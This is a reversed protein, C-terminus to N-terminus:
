VTPTAAEFAFLDCVLYRRDGMLFCHRLVSLVTGDHRAEEVRVEGLCMAVSGRKLPANEYWAELAYPAEHQLYRESSYRRDVEMNKRLVWLSGPFFRELNEATPTDAPVYPHPQLRRVRAEPENWTIKKSGRGYAM